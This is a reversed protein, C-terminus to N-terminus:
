KRGKRERKWQARAKGKGFSGPRPGLPSAEQKPVEDAGPYLKRFEEMSIPQVYFILDGDREAQTIKKM